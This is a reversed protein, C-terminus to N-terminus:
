PMLYPGQRRQRQKPRAVCWPRGLLQWATEQPTRLVTSLSHAFAPLADAAPSMLRNAKRLGKLHQVPM